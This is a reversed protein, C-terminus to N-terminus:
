YYIRTSESRYNDPTGPAGVAPSEDEDSSPGDGEYDDARDPLARMSELSQRPLNPPQFPKIDKARYLARGSPINSRLTTTSPIKQALMSNFTTWKQKLSEIVRTEEMMGADSGWNTGKEVKKDERMESWDKGLRGLSLGKKADRLEELGCELWGLATGIQGSREADIGFFRCAKARSTKKLAEMYRILSHHLKTTGKGAAERWCASANEAHQAADLCLHACLRIRSEFNERAEKDKAWQQYQPNDKRNEAVEASHIDDKLVGLLTAEALALSVLTEATPQAIDACPPTTSLAQARRAVYIHVSTADLLHKTANKIADEREEPSMSAGSTLYLPRLLARALLTRAYGLTSLMFFLDYELSQVKVKPVERGPVVNDSITPRWQIVPTSTLVVNIEEGHQSARSLGADIAFAYPLYADLKSIISPLTSEQASPPLRKYRKLADRVVGRSTSANLPLSPHSESAFSSSFSFSSTTPLAFPFPM